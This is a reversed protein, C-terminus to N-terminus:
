GLGIKNKVRGLTASAIPAAKQAGDALVKVVYGPDNDLDDLRAQIPALGQVVVEALDQKFEAYGKGKYREVIDQIKEDAFASYITLLNALAPKDKGYVIESGSDTVAKKIKRRITDADDRLAIYSNEGKASKAMKKKPDSLSMIRAGEKKITPKPIVLTDKGYRSNIRGAIDRALEVHQKQDDGVPVEDTDYLLIDAAMLVPYDFLGASVSQKGEGKEKYQTMRSLEGMQTHCNLIWALEAHEPRDSQVFLISKEPDIGAAIIIKATELINEELEKPDQPVTIAHLDVVCFINDKGEQGAAWNRIAGIYNGIHASGSPQIGSFVRKKKDM